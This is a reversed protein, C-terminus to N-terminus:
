SLTIQTRMRCVLEVNGRDSGHMFLLSSWGPSFESYSLTTPHRNKSELNM